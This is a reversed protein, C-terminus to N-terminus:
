KQGFLEIMADDTQEQYFSKLYIETTAMQTHGLLEKITHIPINKKIAWDAFSHRATHFSIGPIEAIEAVRKLSRNLKANNNSIEEFSIGLGFSYNYKEIIGNAQPMLKINRQKNTKHMTYILRGNIFDKKHLRCLDGFRIGACYFSFMYMDRALKNNGSLQIKEMTAIQEINLRKREIRQTETKFNLFPNKHYEIIGKKVLDIMVTKIRMFNEHITNKSNGRTILHSEYQKLFSYDVEKIKLESRFEKLKALITILKKYHFRSYKQKCYEIREQFHQYFDDSVTEVTISNGKLYNSELANCMDRIKDNIATANDKTDTKVRGSKADWQNPKVSAHVPFYKVKSGVTIRIKIPFTKDALPRFDWLVPKIKM